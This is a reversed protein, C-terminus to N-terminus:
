HRQYVIYDQFLQWDAKTICMGLATHYIKRGNGHKEIWEYFENRLEKTLTDLYLHGEIVAPPNNYEKISYIDNATVLATCPQGADATVQLVYAHVSVVFPQQQPAETHVGAVSITTKIKADRHVDVNIIQPILVKDLVVGEVEHGDTSIGTIYKGIM